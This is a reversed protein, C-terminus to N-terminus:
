LQFQVGEEVWSTACQKWTSKPELKAFSSPVPIAAKHTCKDAWTISVGRLLIFTSHDDAKDPLRLHPLGGNQRFVCVLNFPNTKSYLSEMVTHSSIEVCFSSLQKKGSRKKRGELKAQKCARELTECLGLRGLAQDESRSTDVERTSPNCTYVVVSLKICSWCALCCSLQAGVGCM